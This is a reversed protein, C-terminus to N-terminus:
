RSSIVTSRMTLKVGDSGRAAAATMSSSYASFLIVSTTYPPIRYAALPIMNESGAATASFVTPVAIM